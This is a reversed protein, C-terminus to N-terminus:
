NHETMAHRLYPHALVVDGVVEHAVRLSDHAVDHRGRALGHGVKGARRSVICLVLEKTVQEAVRPLPRLNEQQIHTEGAQKQYTDPRCPLFDRRTEVNNCLAILACLAFTHLVGLCYSGCFACLLTIYMRYYHGAFLGGFHESVPFGSYLSSFLAHNPPAFPVCSHLSKNPEYVPGTNVM